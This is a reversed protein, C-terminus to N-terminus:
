DGVRLEVETGDPTGHLQQALDGRYRMADVDELPYLNSIAFAGGLVFPTKPILRCGRALQTKEVSWKRSLPAGTHFDPEDLIREIWGDISEAFVTADATEADFYLVQCGDIAYQNGFVDESFFLLGDALGGYSDIWLAAQNWEDRGRAGKVTRSPWLHLADDFAYFGDRADLLANLEEGPRGWRALDDTYGGLGLPGTASAFLRTVSRSTITAGQQTRSQHPDEGRGSCGQVSRWYM